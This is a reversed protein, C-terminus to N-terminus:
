FPEKGNPALEPRIADANAMGSTTYVVLVNSARAEDLLKKAAPLSALCRPRNPCNPKQFDLLLLATTKPDATVSKVELVAPAKVNAWEEIIDGASARAAFGAVLVAAVMAALKSAM